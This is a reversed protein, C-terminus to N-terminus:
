RGTNIKTDSTEIEKIETIESASTFTSVESFAIIDTKQEEIVSVFFFHCWWFQIYLM